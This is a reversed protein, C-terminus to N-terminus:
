FLLVSQLKEAASQPTGSPSAQLSGPPSQFDLWREPGAELAASCRHYPIDSYKPNLCPVADQCMHDDLVSSCSLRVAAFYRGNWTRSTYLLMNNAEAPM